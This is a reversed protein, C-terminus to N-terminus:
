EAGLGRRPLRGEDEGRTTLATKRDEMDPMLTEVGLAAEEDGAGRSRLKIGRQGDRGVSALRNDYLMQGVGKQSGIKLLPESCGSRIAHDPHAHHAPHAHIGGDARGLRLTEVIDEYLVGASRTPEEMAAKGDEGPARVPGEHGREAGMVRLQYSSPICDRDELSM